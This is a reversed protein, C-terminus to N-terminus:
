TMRYEASRAIIELRQKMKCLTFIIELMHPFYHKLKTQTNTQRYRDIVRDTQKDTHQSQSKPYTQNIKTFTLMDFDLDCLRFQNNM